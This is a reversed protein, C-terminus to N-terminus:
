TILIHITHYTGKEHENHSSAANSLHYFDELLQRVPQSVTDPFAGNRITM